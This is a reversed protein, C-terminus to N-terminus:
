NKLGLFVGIYKKVESYVEDFTPKEVYGSFRFKEYAYGEECENHHCFKLDKAMM